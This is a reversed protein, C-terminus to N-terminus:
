VIKDLPNLSSPNFAIKEELRKKVLIKINKDIFLMKYLALCNRFTIQPTLVCSKRELM